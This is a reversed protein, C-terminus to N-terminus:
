HHHFLCSRQFRGDSSVSEALYIDGNGHSKLAYSYYKDGIKTGGTEYALSSGKQNDYLDLGSPVKCPTLTCVDSYENKGGCEAKLQYYYTNGTFLDDDEFSSGNGQYIERYGSDRETSRYLTFSDAELSTAWQLAANDAEEDTESTCFLNGVLGIQESINLSVSYGAATAKPSNSYEAATLSASIVLGIVLSALKLAYKKM